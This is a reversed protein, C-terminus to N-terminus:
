NWLDQSDKISSGYNNQIEKILQQLNLILNNSKRILFHFKYPRTKHLM